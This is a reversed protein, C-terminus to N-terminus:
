KVTKYVAYLTILVVPKLIDLYLVLGANGPSFNRNVVIERIHGYGAGLLFVSVAIITALWFYDRRFWFCLVGLVGFSLNSVAVEWQFPNGTPWGISQAVRNSLFSHGVFGFISSAGTAVVLFYLLLTEIIPSKAITIHLIAVIFTLILFFIEHM